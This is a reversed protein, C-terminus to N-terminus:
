QQNDVVYLENVMIDLTLELESTDIDQEKNTMIEDVLKEFKMQEDFSIKKVPFKQFVGVGIDVGIGRKKGEKHFWKKGFDSNLISLLYKLSYNEEKKYIISFSFGVYYNKDDFTFEPIDFMGKCILKEQEFINIRIVEDDNKIKKIRPRHLSYPKNSSTIFDVFKDLHSKINPYKVGEKIDKENLFKDSFIIKDNNSNIKYRGINLPYLYDKILDNKETQNFNIENQEQVSLVFVGDGVKFRSDTNGDLMSKSLKDPSEILGQSVEYLNKLLDCDEYQISHEEEFNLKDDSTFISKYERESENFLFKEEDFDDTIEKIKTQYDEFQNKIYFHIMHNGVVEDFIKYDKFNIIESITLENKIRSILKSSGTSKTWYSNTIYSMRGNLKLLDFGLHSFFFWYDMKGEIIHNWVESKRIPEFIRKGDKEKIYPPNGIIIDFGIFNGEEDLVEPFEIRWEFSNKFNQTNLIHNIEDSTINFKKKINNLDRVEKDRVEVGMLKLQNIKYDLNYVEGEFKRLKKNLDIDLEVVINKKIDEVQKQIEKKIKKDDTEKYQNVKELYEKVSTKTTKLIEKLDQNLPFRHILSNGQKINIDINPLTKLEKYNSKETYYSNKLLEIWLRLRCIKVSNPNIDVGFLCKEIIKKKENFLTEQVKQLETSPLGDIGIKYEILNNERDKVFLEDRDIQIEYGNLLLGLKSKIRIFQNLCSVLFHGSGVSPDCIKISDLITNYESSKSYNLYTQLQEISTCNWDYEKNFKDLVVNEILSKSMNNTCFGPTYFSGEKYGNIKEFILGLVSSNILEKKYKVIKKNGSVGFNYTNLFKILYKFTNLNKDKIVKGDDDNVVKTKNYVPITDDDPLGSIRILKRELETTEFLSSNLYPILNYKNQIQPIRTKVPENLVNFFLTNLDDYDKLTETNLFKFKSDDSNNYSIIKSELLKLFLIRNIWTISLELSLNFIKEEFTDGDINDPNDINEFLNESQIKSIVSEIITGKIPKKMRTILTKGKITNEELGIIYLLEKYFNTNLSNSDNKFSEKLLHIPNLTKSFDILENKNDIIEQLNFVNYKITSDINPIYDMMLKYFEDTGNKDFGKEIITKKFINKINKDKYFPYFDQSSFIFLNKLDTIIIHTIENNKEQEREWLYYLITEVFSKKIFGSKESVMDKSNPIKVEIIVKSKDSDKKEYIVLDSGMNGKYSKNNVKYSHSPYYLDLLLEKLNGKHHEEDQKSESTKITTENFKSMLELVRNLEDEIISENYFLPNISKQSKIKQFELM